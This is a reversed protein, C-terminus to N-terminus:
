NILPVRHTCSLHLSEGTKASFPVTPIDSLYGSGVLESYVETMATCTSMTHASVSCALLSIVVAIETLCRMTLTLFVLGSSVTVAAPSAKQGDVALSM